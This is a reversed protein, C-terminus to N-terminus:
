SLRVLFTVAIAAVLVGQTTSLALPRRQLVRGILVAPAGICILGLATGLCLALVQLTLGGAGILGVGLGIPAAALGVRPDARRIVVAISALLLVAGSAFAPLQLFSGALMGSTLLLAALRPRATFFLLFIAAVAELAFCRTFGDQLRQAFGSQSALTPRGITLATLTGQAFARNREGELQSGLVVRYNTPLISLFRFDQRLEGEGCVFSANLEVFGERLLARETSRTCPKAAASLPMQEWVGVRISDARADLDAQSLDGDGDADVPALQGLSSATLTITEDLQEARAEALVYIVDADHAHALASCFFVVIFAVRTM